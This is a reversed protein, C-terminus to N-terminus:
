EKVYKGLFTGDSRYHLLYDADGVPPPIFSTATMYISTGEKEIAYVEGTPSTPLPRAVNNRWWRLIKRWTGNFPVPDVEIVDNLSLNDNGLDNGTGLNVASSRMNLSQIVVRFYMPEGPQPPTPSGGYRSYFESITGNFFNKDIEFTQQGYDEIPTGYQWWTLKNWPAPILVDAPNNTYWALWLPKLKLYNYQSANTIPNSNARFWYYGTYLGAEVNLRDELSQMTAVVNPLGRFQGGYTREWDIYIEMEPLDTGLQNVIRDVHTKPSATDDYFDYIGRIMRRQRCQLYNREFQTDIWNRQGSRMFLADTKSQMVDYDIELQYFSVDPVDKETVIIASPTFARKPHTTLYNIATHITPFAPTRLNEGMRAPYHIM